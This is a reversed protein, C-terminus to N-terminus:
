RRPLLGRNRLVRVPAEPRRPDYLVLDELGDGDLDGLRARGGTDLRQRAQRSGFRWRPGGLWVELAEGDGSVLLDRHGDGNWDGAITPLFGNPRMTEFSVGISLNRRFAPEAEFGGNEVRRHLTAVLDVHRRLFLKALDLVGLPVHIHLLEPAGDGDIDVLQDMAYGGRSEFVRDPEDLRWTGGRNRHLRTRTVAGLLGGSTHAVLLDARGDGDWDELQTRVVGTNRVHDEASLLGLPLVATATDPLGGAEQLFVRLEHRSAAVLDARGDGDVDGVDLRPVDFYLELENEAVLPGPRPPLFYNARGGVALTAVVAGAGDLLWARGLGPVLLRGAGLGPRRLAFRDLGREDVVPAATPGPTRLRTWRARRGGFSGVEVGDAHLLLLEAGPRGDLDGLDYAAAPVPLPTRFGVEPPLAGDAGGFRVCMERRERPPVGDAVVTWLDAHGDGDLDAIEAAVTRGPEDLAMLEFPAEDAAVPAALALVAGAM